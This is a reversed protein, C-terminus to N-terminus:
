FGVAQGDARPDSAGSWGGDLRHIAQGRGFQVTRSSVASVEHGLARLEDITNTTFGPEVLVELGRTWQWRPADLAAQPNQSFDRLRSVLQLHGQPQMFGGMVGFTMLDTEPGGPGPTMMAPIITHYPRKNPAVVNPHGTELSFCSGRNQMAIGTGPVVIGSGFGMYNSQIFSVCRGEEDATTLLITGGPKPIGGDFCQARDPEICGALKALRDSDLLTECTTELCDPDAVHRHADAFGLKMAEIQLHLVEPSDPEMGPLDFHGLVGLAILAAIGQGNPPIENINVGRYTVRIPDVWLGSHGALDDETMAGGDARSANAIARALAGQYFSRGETEAISELTDAHDPLTIM